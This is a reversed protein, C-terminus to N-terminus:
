FSLLLDLPGFEKFFNFIYGGSFDAAWATEALAPLHVVLDFVAVLGWCVVFMFAAGFVFGLIKNLVGVFGHEATKAVIKFFISILIKSVFYLLIFAIIASIISVIPKTLAESIAGIINGSTDEAAVKEVDVDALGAAFKFITPLQEEATEAVIESCEKELVAEIKNSLPASILPSVVSAGVASAFSFGIALAAVFRVPKAVSKVFGRKTSVILGILAILVLSVDVIINVTM